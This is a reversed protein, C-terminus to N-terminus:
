DRFMEPKFMPEFRSKRKGYMLKKILAKLSYPLLSFWVHQVGYKFLYMRIKLLYYRISKRAPRIDPDRTYGMKEATKGCISWILNAEEARLEKKWAGIKAPNPKRTIGMHQQLLKGTEPDKKKVKEFLEELLPAYGTLTETYPLQLFTCIRQLVTEPERILEEYHIELLRRPDLKEKDRLLVGYDYNWNLANYTLSQTQRKYKNELLKKRRPINDLPNRYLLIFKADPYRDALQKLCVTMKLQKDVITTVAQKDKLPIFLLYTLRIALHFDLSERHARLSDRLEDKGPFQFGLNEDSFLFFDRCYADIVAETWETIRHYRAYLNYAFPEEIPSVVEPHMNLMTSLLTSGTRPGSVIFNLRINRIKETEM